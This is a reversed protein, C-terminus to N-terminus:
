YTIAGAPVLSNWNTTSTLAGGYDWITQGSSSDIHTATCFGVDQTAGGSLIFFTDASTDSIFIIPSAATGTVTLASTVTYTTGHTFTYTKGVTVATFSNTSFGFSGAFTMTQNSTTGGISTMIANYTITAATTM